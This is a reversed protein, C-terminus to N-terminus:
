VETLKGKSKLFNIVEPTKKVYMKSLSSDKWEEGKAKISSVQNCDDSKNDPTLQQYKKLEGGAVNHDVDLQAKNVDSRVLYKDWVNLAYESVSTRDPILGGGNNSSWELAIDYLLPGWGRATGSAYIVWGNSCEGNNKDKEISVDGWPRKSSPNRKVRPASSLDSESIDIYEVYVFDSKAKRIRIAITPWDEILEKIKREIREDLGENLYKRWNEFLLKM